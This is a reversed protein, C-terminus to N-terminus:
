RAHVEGDIAEFTNAAVEGTGKFEFLEPYEQRLAM